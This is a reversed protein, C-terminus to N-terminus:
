RFHKICVRVVGIVAAGALPRLPYRPNLPKLFLTGSDAILQRLSVPGDGHVVIVYDNPVSALSPEVVVFSGDTFSESGTGVMAEGQVEMAFTHRKVPVPVAIAKHGNLDHFNDVELYEAAKAPSLTPVKPLDSARTSDVRLTASMLESLSVGLAEAVLPQVARRPATGGPREWQQVASRTVGIAAAFREQSLGLNQRGQRIFDHLAM